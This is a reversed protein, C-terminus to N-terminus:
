AQKKETIAAAARVIALRTTAYDEACLPEGSDIMAGIEQYSEGDPGNCYAVGSSLHENCV